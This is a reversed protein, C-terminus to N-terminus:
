NKRRLHLFVSRVVEAQDVSATGQPYLEKVAASVQATAAGALGLTQVAESLDAYDNKPKPAILKRPKPPTPALPVRRAYFLIAKGNM